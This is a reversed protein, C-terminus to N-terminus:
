FPKQKPSLRMVSQLYRGCQTIFLSEEKLCNNLVPLKIVLDCSMLGKKIMQFVIEEFIDTNEKKQLYGEYLSMLTMHNNISM